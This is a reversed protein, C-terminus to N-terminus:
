ISVANQRECGSTVKLFLNEPVKIRYDGAKNFSLLCTITIQNDSKEVDVALGTNDTGGGYVPKLGKAREPISVDPGGTIIIENGAYGEILLEGTFDKIILKTEKTNQVTTKYEQAPLTRATLLAFLFVLCYNMAKM